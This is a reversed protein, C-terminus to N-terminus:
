PRTAAFERAIAFHLDALIEFVCIAFETVPTEIAM